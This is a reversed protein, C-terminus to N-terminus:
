NDLKSYLNILLFPLFYLIDSVQIVGFDWTDESGAM